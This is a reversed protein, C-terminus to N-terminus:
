AAVAPKVPPGDNDGLDIARREWAIAEDYRGLGELVEALAGTARKDGKDAMDTLWEMAEAVRGAQWLAAKFDSMDRRAAMSVARQWWATAEESRGSDQFDKAIRTVTWLDGVGTAAAAEAARLRWALAEDPFGRSDLSRALRDMAEPAGLAAAQRTLSDAIRYYHRGRADESLALLTVPSTIHRAASDWFTGAPVPFRRDQRDREALYDHLGYEPEAPVAEGPRSRIEELLGPAGRIPTKAYELAKDFQEDGHLNWDPDNLYGSAADRLFAQPLVTMGAARHMDLAATMLAGVVPVSALKFRSILEPIGVLFQTVKGNAYAAALALRPDATSKLALHDLDEASFEEPVGIVEDSLLLKSVHSLRDPQDGEPSATLMGWDKRWLTGFILVPGRSRDALLSRLGAAVKAADEGSSPSLFFDRLDDLWLVTQPPIQDRALALLLARSPELYPPQWIRWDDPLRKAAEWLARTKGSASDGVLVVLRNGEVRGVIERLRADHARSVYEPM